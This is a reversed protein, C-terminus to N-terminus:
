LKGHGITHVVTCPVGSRACVVSWPCVRHKISHGIFSLSPLLLISAEDTLTTISSDLKNVRLPM